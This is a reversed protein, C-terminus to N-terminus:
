LPVGQRSIEAQIAALGRRQLAKVAGPRKGLARAVEEVTLGGLIRLLLVDCQDPTLRMIVREVQAASLRLLAEDEVDGVSGRGELDDPAMAAEPRRGRYRREDQLRHHAIVFVWSRFEAEGGRFRQLGRVVQLFVESTLDEPEAAGRARLYGTVGPALSRYLITWAWEAGGRAADLVGPFSDGLGPGRVPHTSEAMM